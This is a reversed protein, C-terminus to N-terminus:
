IKGVGANAVVTTPVDAVGYHGVLSSKYPALKSLAASSTSSPFSGSGSLRNWECIYGLSSTCGSADDVTVVSYLSSSTLSASTIPTDVNDFYNGELLVWTNVDIDFAHGGINKFYNNVGHFIIESADYDTGMHPARGSVDHIYNGVFTYYDKLGLLLITWYHEGNCSASWSTTGDFENNSITVRGGTGWGSVIMQRGTLSFKNHDIWVNDTGDLTIIDGGWVYQPNLGTFFINQVIVNTAGGGITLGRGKIVGSSGVGVLSKNSAVKIPSRAANYYTCASTAYDCTDMIWLQGNPQCTNPCCQTSTTGTYSTYDWTQSIMIVRATSDTLWTELEALSSPYQPTASGGGTTGAAFGTPSGKVQALVKQTALGALLFISSSLKM